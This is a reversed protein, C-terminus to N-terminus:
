FQNCNERAFNFPVLVVEVVRGDKDGVPLLYEHAARNHYRNSSRVIIAPEFVAVAQVVSNIRAKNCRIPVYRNEDVVFNTTFDKAVFRDSWRERATRDRVRGVACPYATHQHDFGDEDRLPVRSVLACVVYQSIEVASPTPGILCM